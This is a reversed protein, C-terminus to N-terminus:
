YWPVRLCLLVYMVADHRRLACFTDVTSCAIEVIGVGFRIYPNLGIYEKPDQENYIRGCDDKWYGRPPFYAQLWLNREMCSASRISSKEM